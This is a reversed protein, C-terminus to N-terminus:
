FGGGYFFLFVIGGWYDCGGKVNVKLMWGMEGCVVFFIKDFLGWVEVDEIFVFVVYDFFLGM